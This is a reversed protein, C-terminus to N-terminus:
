KHCVKICSYDMWQPMCPHEFFVFSCKSLMPYIMVLDSKIVNKMNKCGGHDIQPSRTMQVAMSYYVLYFKNSSFIAGTKISHGFQM